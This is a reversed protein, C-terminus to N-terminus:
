KLGRLALFLWGALFCLGGLPTIPWVWKANTLALYYLSGSFLLIGAGFLWFVPSRVAGGSSALAMAVALLAVSHVLHYFSATKWEEMRANAVLTEKFGHAGFAGLAVALFGLLAAIRIATM